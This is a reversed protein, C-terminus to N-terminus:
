RCRVMGGPAGVPRTAAALLLRDYLGLYRAVMHSVHYNEAFRARAAEGCALARESDCMSSLIAEAFSNVDGVPCLAACRGGDTAERNPGIDSAVIAKGAAMAELLAISLGERESPLVICDACEILRRVDRRFGPLVFRADQGEAAIAARLESEFPGEGPLVFRFGTCTLEALRRAIRPLWELGKGRALRGACLILVEDTAVGLVRRLAERAAADLCAAPDIGNPIALIRESSGIGLRVAWDRHFESVAVAIDGHRGAYRELVAVGRVLLAPSAEHFAFGHITHLVIAVGARRAAIRGIFGAKSTHTHVIDYRNTRLYYELRLLGRVDALPRVRRRICDLNVVGLSLADAAAAFEPDTTLVAVNAGARAAATAIDLVVQAGGGFASDGVVHCVRVGDLRRDAM